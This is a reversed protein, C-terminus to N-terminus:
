MKPESGRTSAYGPQEKQAVTAAELAESKAKLNEPTPNSEAAMAAKLWAMNADASAQEVSKGGGASPSDLKEAVVGAPGGASAARRGQISRALDKYAESLVQGAAREQAVNEASPSAGMASAALMWVQNAKIFAAQKEQESSAPADAKKAPSGEEVPLYGKQNKQAVTLAESAALKARWNEDTPSFEFALAASAAARAAKSFAASREREHEEGDQALRAKEADVIARTSFRLAEGAALAAPDKADIFAMGLEAAIADKYISSENKNSTTMIEGLAIRWACLALSIPILGSGGHEFLLRKAALLKRARTCVAIAIRAHSARSETSDQLVSGASASFLWVRFRSHRDKAM